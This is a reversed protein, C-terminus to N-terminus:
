VKSRSKCFRSPRTLSAPLLPLAAPLLAAGLGPEPPKIPPAPACCPASPGSSGSRGGPITRINRPGKGARVKQPDRVQHRPTQPCSFCLTQPEPISAPSAAQSPAAARLQTKPPSTHHFSPSITVSSLGPSATGLLVRPWPLGSSILLAPSLMPILAQSLEPAASQSHSRPCTVQGRQAEAAEDAFHLHNNRGQIHPPSSM